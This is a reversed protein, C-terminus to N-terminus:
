PVRKATGRPSVHEHAARALATFEDYNRLYDSADYVESALALLVADQSYKYHVRWTLPPIHLAQTPSNLNVQGLSGLGDDLVINCEGTVCILLEHLSKHAHEGRVNSNPVDFVMFMRKPTFPLDGEVEAFTLGGRLDRIEPLELLRAGGPLVPQIGATVRPSPHPSGPLPADVYGVIRAPNGIVIAKTPVDHTVVSGAGVMAERGVTIGPLIVAGGGITCGQLLRTTMLDFCRAGSRPFRDNTFTANPGIFVDDEVVVGKWLHAGSKVTVRDGLRVGEEVFTADCINCDSGIVAGSCVHAFAWIRTRLGVSAGKEVISQPHFADTM